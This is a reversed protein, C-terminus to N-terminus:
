NKRSIPAKVLALLFIVGSISLLFYIGLLGYKRYWTPYSSLPVNARLTAQTFRELKTVVEGRANVIATIGDNTSRVLPIGLELARMRAMQMHQYPGFSDGFWADNSVTVILVPKDPKTEAVLDHVIGPYTIEYCIAPVVQYKDLQMPRQKTTAPSFSSMPLDFFRILGRLLDGLPVYEGFPVLVQKHYTQKKEGLSLFAAYSIQQESQYVPLGLLLDTQSKESRRNLDGIIDEVQHKYAPIAGEPWVLLDADWHSESQQYLVNIIKSFFRRDWKKEQAINPQVLAVDISQKAPINQKMPTITAIMPISIFLVLVVAVPSLLFAKYSLSDESQKAFLYFRILVVLCSAIALMFWSVGYVGFWTALMWLPGDIQSYGAFLWPFGSFIKTQVFEFIVWIFPIILIIFHSGLRRSMKGVIYFGSAKIVSLVVVLLLSIAVAGIVPVYGFEHISVYVWSVGIGFAGFSWYLAVQFLTLRAKRKAGEVKDGAQPYDCCVITENILLMISLFTLPWLDIPSFGMPYVAGIFILLFKKYILTDKKFLNLISYQVHSSYPM